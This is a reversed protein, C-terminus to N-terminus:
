SGCMGVHMCISIGSGLITYDNKYEIGCGNAERDTTKRAQVSREIYSEARRPTPTRTHIHRNIPALSLATLRLVALSLDALSLATIFSRGQCQITNKKMRPGMCMGLSMCINIGLSLNTRVAFKGIM